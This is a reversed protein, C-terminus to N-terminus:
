DPEDSAANFDPMPGGQGNIVYDIAREVSMETWLYRRSGGVSWPSHEHPWCGAARMQRTSNAKFATLILEPRVQASVVVHVHNTRVNIADLLWCRIECTERIALDVAARQAADLTGPEHKVLHTSYERWRNNQPIFPTGYQNHARDVSGREDGHMWTAYCRFTILYAIPIHEENFYRIMDM